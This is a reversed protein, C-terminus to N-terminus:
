LPRRRTRRWGAEGAVEGPPAADPVPVPEVRLAQEEDGLEGLAQELAEIDARPAGPRSFAARLPVWARRRAWPGRRAVPHPPASRCWTRDGRWPAACPM